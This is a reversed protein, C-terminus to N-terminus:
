CDDFDKFKELLKIAMEPHKVLNKLYVKSKMKKLHNEIQRAQNPSKCALSWFLFWPKYKATFKDYYFDSNHKELRDIPDETTFGIYFKDFTESYIVYVFAM